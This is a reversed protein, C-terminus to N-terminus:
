SPISWILRFLFNLGKINSIIHIDNNEDATYIYDDDQTFKDINLQSTCKPLSHTNPYGPFMTVVNERCLSSVSQSELDVAILQDNADDLGLLIHDSLSSLQVLGVSMEFNGSITGNNVLYRYLFNENGDTATWFMFIISFDNNFTFTKITGSTDVQSFLDVVLEPQILSSTIDIFKVATKDSFYVSAGKQPNLTIGHIDSSNSQYCRESGFESCCGDGRCLLVETSRNQRHVVSIIGLKADLSIIDQNEFQVIQSIASLEPFSAILTMNRENTIDWEYVHKEDDWMLLEMGRSNSRAPCGLSLKGQPRQYIQSINFRLTTESSFCLSM